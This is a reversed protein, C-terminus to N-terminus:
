LTFEKKLKKVAKMAQQRCYYLRKSSKDNLKKYYLTWYIKNYIEKKEETLKKYQLIYKYKKEWEYKIM